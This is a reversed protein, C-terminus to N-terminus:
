VLALAEFAAFGRANRLLLEPLYDRIYGHGGYVQVAGDAVDLAVRRVQTCALTAERLAPRGQDLLWAAEWALLRAGDIEIAMDALKFAIAQKQAIKAGFAEREKAYERALEYAARAVGVGCAALAVRGRAVIRALDCGRAEGLRADAPVRVGDLALGVTPLAQIGMYAEPTAVLGPAGRPVLFGQAAGDEDAFVLVHEGGEIWPALCKAGSLVYGDGARKAKAQPRFADSGFRPEALALSGPVFARGTFRPLLATQQAQSGFDLLPLALLSPSLIALAIALDGWALEEALLAGTLASREGGGGFAEPLANAVLGLEHARALVEAPLKKAEDCARAVPRIEQEAFGRVTEVALAQEETPEFDIM